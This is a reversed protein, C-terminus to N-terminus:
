LIWLMTIYGELCLRFIVNKRSDFKSSVVTCCVAYV